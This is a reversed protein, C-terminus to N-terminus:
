NEEGKEGKKERKGIGGEDEEEGGGVLYRTGGFVKKALFMAFLNPLAM